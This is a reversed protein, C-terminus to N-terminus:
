GFAFLGLHSVLIKTEIGLLILGRVMKARQRLVGKCQKGLRVGILSLIFTIIGILFHRTPYKLSVKGSLRIFNEGTREDSSLSSPQCNSM